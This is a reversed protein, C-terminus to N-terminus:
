GAAGATQGTASKQQRQNDTDSGIEQDETRKDPGDPGAMKTALKEGGGSIIQRWEQQQEAITGAMQRNDEPRADPGDDQDGTQM